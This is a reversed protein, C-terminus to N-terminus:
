TEADRLQQLFENVAFREEVSPPNMAAFDLCFQRFWRIPISQDLMWAREQFFDSYNTLSLWLNTLGALGATGGTEGEALKLGNVSGVSTTCLLDPRIGAGYLYNLAGVEFDGKSGGGSLVIARTTM